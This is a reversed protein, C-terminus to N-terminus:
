EYIYEINSDLIGDYYYMGSNPYDNSNYTYQYTELDTPFGPQADTKELLNNYPGYIDLGNEMMSMVLVITEIDTINRYIGNKNDYNFSLVRSSDIQDIVNNNEFNFETTYESDFLTTTTLTIINNVDDYAVAHNYSDDSIEPFLHEFNTLIGDSNYSLTASEVFESNDFFSMLSLKDGEYQFTVSYVDDSDSSTDIISLLKNGDYSFTQMYSGDDDAYNYIIQKILTNDTPNGGDDDNSDSDSSCAFTLLLSILLLAKLKM